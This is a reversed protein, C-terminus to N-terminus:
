YICTGKGRCVRVNEEQSGLDILWFFLSSSLKLLALLYASHFITLFSTCMDKLFLVALVKSEFMSKQYGGSDENIARRCRTVTLKEPGHVPVCVSAAFNESCIAVNPISLKSHCNCVNMEIEPPWRTQVLWQSKLVWHLDINGLLIFGELLGLAFTGTWYVIYKKVFWSTM